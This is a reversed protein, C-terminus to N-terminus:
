SFPLQNLGGQSNIRERASRSLHFQRGGLVGSIRGDKTLRLEGYSHGHVKVALRGTAARNRRKETLRGSLSVGNVYSIGTLKFIETSGHHSGRMYGARTGAAFGLQQAPFSMFGVDHRLTLVTARLVRGPAGPLGPVAALRALEPPLPDVPERRAAGCQAVPRNAIFAALARKACGSDDAYLVAHGTNPVPLLQANPLQGALATADELPTRIDDRGSLILTPVAPLPGSIRNPSDSAEPWAACEDEAAESTLTELSFPAFSAPALAGELAQLKAQRVAVTDGASWPFPHDECTTALYDVDVSLTRAISARPLLIPEVPRPDDLTLAFSVENLRVLASIDGGAALHLAAPLSARVFPHLDSAFLAEFATEGAIESSIRAHHGDLVLRTAPRRLLTTLDHLGAAGLVRRMAPM